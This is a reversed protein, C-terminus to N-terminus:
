LLSTAIWLTAVPAVIGLGYEALLETASEVVDDSSRVVAMLLIAVAGLALLGLARLRTLQGRLLLRYVTSFATLAGPGQTTGDTTATTPM